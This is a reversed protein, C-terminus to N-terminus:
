ITLSNEYKVPLRRLLEEIGISIQDCTLETLCPKLDCSTKPCSRYNYCPGCDWNGDEFHKQVLVFDYYKGYTKGNAFTFIGLLPKKLGGAIHFSASDVSIVCDSAAIFYLM